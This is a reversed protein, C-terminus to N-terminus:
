AVCVNAVCKSWMCVCKPLVGVQGGGVQSGM